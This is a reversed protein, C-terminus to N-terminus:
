HNNLTESIVIWKTQKLSQHSSSFSLKSLMLRNHCVNVITYRRYLNTFTQLSVWATAYVSSVFIPATSHITATGQMVGDFHRQLDIISCQASNWRLRTDDLVQQEPSQSLRELHRSLPRGSAATLSLSDTAVPAALVVLVVRVVRVEPICDYVDRCVYLLTLIANGLSYQIQKLHCFSLCVREFWFTSNRYRYAKKVLSM